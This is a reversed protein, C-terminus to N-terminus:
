ALADTVRQGSTLAEHVRRERLARAFAAPSLGTTRKFLRQFHTATYGTLEALQDLTM